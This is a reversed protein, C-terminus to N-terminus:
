THDDQGGRGFLVSLFTEEDFPPSFATLDEPLGAQLYLRQVSERKEFEPGDSSSM